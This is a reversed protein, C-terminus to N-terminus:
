IGKIVQLTKTDRIPVLFAHVGYKKEDIILQAFVAAHNCYVGLDGVWWKAAGIEPTNIIFTETARDYIATTM